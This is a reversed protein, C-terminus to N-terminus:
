VGLKDWIWRSAKIAIAFFISGIVLLAVIIGMVAIIYFMFWALVDM